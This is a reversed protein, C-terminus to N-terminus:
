LSIEGGDGSFFLICCKTFLKNSNNLSRRVVRMHSRFAIQADKTEATANWEDHLFFFLEEVSSRLSPDITILDRVSGKAKRNSPLMFAQLLRRDMRRQSTQPNPRICQLLMKAMPLFRLITRQPGHIDTHFTLPSAM